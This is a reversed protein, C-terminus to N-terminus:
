TNYGRSGRKGGSGGAGEGRCLHANCVAAVVDTALSSADVDWAGVGGLDISGGFASGFARL